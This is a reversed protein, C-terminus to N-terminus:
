PPWVIRVNKPATTVISRNHVAVGSVIQQNGGVLAVRGLVHGAVRVNIEQPGAPGPLTASQTSTPWALAEASNGPVIYPPSLRDNKYKFVFVPDQYTGGTLNQHINRWALPQGIYEEIPFGDYLPNLSAMFQDVVPVQLWQAWYSWLVVYGAQLQGFYGPSKSADACQKVPDVPTNPEPHPLGIAGPILVWVGVDCLVEQGKRAEVTTDIVGPSVPTMSRGLVDVTITGTDPHRVQNQLVIREPHQGARYLMVNQVEEKPTVTATLTVKLTSSQPPNTYGAKVPDPDFTVACPSPEGAALITASSKSRPSYGM